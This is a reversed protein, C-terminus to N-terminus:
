KVEVRQIADRLKEFDAQKAGNSLDIGQQSIWALLKIETWGRKRAEIGVMRLSNIGRKGKNRDLIKGFGPYDKAFEVEDGFLEESEEKIGKEIGPIAFAPLDPPGWYYWDGKQPLRAKFPTINDRKKGISAFCEGLGYLYRGGGLEEFARKEADSLGGKFPELDTQSAGNEKWEWEDTDPNRYWLRCIIGATGGPVEEVRFETRWGFTGFAEDLRDHVARATIYPACMAWIKQNAVGSRLIRWEIEEEAFPKRLIEAVAQAKM